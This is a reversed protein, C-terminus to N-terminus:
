GGPWGMKRLVDFNDKLENSKKSGAERWSSPGIIPFDPPGAKGWQGSVAVQSYTANIAMAALRRDITWVRHDMLAETRPDPEATTPMDDAHDVAIASVYRSGEPLNRVM